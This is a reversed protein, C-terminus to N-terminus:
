ASAAAPRAIAGLLVAVQRRAFLRLGVVYILSGLAGAVVAGALESPITKGVLWGTGFALGSLALFRAGDFFMERGIRFADHGAGTVLLVAAFCGPAVCFAAVAGNVGFLASGVATAGLHVLVLPVALANLLRARGVAFMAPLLFNVLLAAVTWPVLLLGFVRLTHVGTADLSGPFLEHILPAGAAILAALAPAVLLMSYRFGQPVTDAVVAQREARAARTMDPIRSMGLAMGTGAVLYSAFLYAYSLVTTDGIAAHSAFALTIVFLMNFALYIATRGLLLGADALLARPRVARKSAGVGGSLAVGAVMWSFTVVAMAFMSWGLTQEGATGMIALFTLLGAGAGAIYAGAVITFRDRIALVTAGGAAWLQLTMALGLVPLADRTVNRGESGLGPALLHAVPNALPVTVILVPLAIVALAAAFERVTLRADDVLLPVSTLRLSQSFVGFTTYLAFAVFFGDTRTNTGFKSLYLVAQIASAAAMAFTALSMALGARAKRAVAPRSAAVAPAAPVAEAAVPFSQTSM